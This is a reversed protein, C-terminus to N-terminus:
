NFTSANKLGKKFKVGDLKSLDGTALDFENYELLIEDETVPKFNVSIAMRKIGEEEHISSLYYKGSIKRGVLKYYREEPIKCTLDKRKPYFDMHFIGVIHSVGALDPKRTKVEYESIEKELVSLNM